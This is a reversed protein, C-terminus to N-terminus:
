KAIAGQVRLYDLLPLLPLGLITFYDGEIRAFLQVGLGELRYAGPGDLAQDGISDLYVDLFDDSYDRMFLRASDMQHWLRVGDRLVCVCDILTHQRGRLASLQARAAERDVPKSYIVGDQELLQDAGIVLRGPHHRSVYRAKHEALTEAIAAGDAGEATLSAKIEEEDIRAPAVMLAVGADELLRRRTGSASALVVTYAANM